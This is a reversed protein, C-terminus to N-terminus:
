ERGRKKGRKGVKKKRTIDKGFEGGNEKRGKEKDKAEKSGKKM